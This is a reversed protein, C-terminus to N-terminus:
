CWITTGGRYEMNRYCRVSVLVESGECCDGVEQKPNSIHIGWQIKVSFIVRM